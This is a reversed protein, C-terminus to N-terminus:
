EDDVAEVEADDVDELAEGEDDEAIDPVEEEEVGDIDEEVGPEEEVEGEGEAGFDADVAVEEGGDEEVVENVDPEEEGETVVNEIAEQLENLTTDDEETPPPVVKGSKGKGKPAVKAAKATGKPATKPAVKPTAKAGKPSVKGKPAVKPSVKGKPAVKPTAVKGAGKPAAKPSITKAVGKPATKGKAVIAKGVSTKGKAGVKSTVTKAGKGKSKPTPKADERVSLNHAELFVISEPTLEMITENDEGLIGYAENTQPDAVIRFDSEVWIDSGPVVEHFSIEELKRIKSALASSKGAVKAKATIKGKPMTKAQPKGKSSAKKEATLASKYHGSNETGCYWMGGVENKCSKGCIYPTAGNVMKECTHTEPEEVGTEEDQSEPQVFSDLAAQISEVPIEYSEEYLSAVIHDALGTFDM